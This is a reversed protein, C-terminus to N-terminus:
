TFEVCEIQHRSIRLRKQHQAVGISDAIHGQARGQIYNVSLRPMQSKHVFANRVVASQDSSYTFGFLYRLHFRNQFAGDVRQTGCLSLDDTPLKITPVISRVYLLLLAVVNCCAALLLPM